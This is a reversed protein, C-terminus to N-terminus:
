SQFCQQQQRNESSGLNCNENGVGLARTEFSVACQINRVSCAAVNKSQTFNDERRVELPHYM